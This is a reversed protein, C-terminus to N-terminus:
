HTEQFLCWGSLVLQKDSKRRCSQRQTLLEPSTDADRSNHRCRRFNCWAGGLHLDLLGPMDVDVVHGCCSSM